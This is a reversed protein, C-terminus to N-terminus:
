PVLEKLIQEWPTAPRGSQAAQPQGAQGYPAMGLSSRKVQDAAERIAEDALRSVNVDSLRPAARVAEALKREFITSAIRYNEINKGALAGSVPNTSITYYNRFFRDAGERAKTTFRMAEEDRREEPTKGHPPVPQQTYMPAVRINGQQDKGIAVVSHGPGINMVQTQSQWLQELVARPYILERGQQDKAIAGNKDLLYITRGDPSEGIDHIQTGPVTIGSRNFYEIAARKDGHKYLGWLLAGVEADMQWRRREVEALKQHAQAQEVGRSLNRLKELEPQIEFQYMAERRAIQEKIADTMVKAARDLHGRKRLVDAKAEAAALWAQKLGRNEPSVPTSAPELSPQASAALPRPEPQPSSQVAALPSPQRTADPQPAPQVQEQSEPQPTTAPPQAQSAPQQAREQEARLAREYAEAAARRAEEDALFAEHDVQEREAKREKQPREFKEYEDDARQELKQRRQRLREAEQRAREAEQGAIMGGYITAAGGLTKLLRAM